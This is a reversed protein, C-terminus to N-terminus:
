EIDEKKKEFSPVENGFTRVNLNLGNRAISNDEENVSNEQFSKKTSIKKLKSIKIIQPTNYNENISINNYPSNKDFTDDLTILNGRKQKVKPLKVTTSHILTNKELINKKNEEDSNYEKDSNKDKNKEKNEVNKRIDDNVMQLMHSFGHGMRTYKEERNPYKNWPIYDCRKDLEGRIVSECSACLYNNLPKKALLWNDQGEAKRTYQDQISKIQAELFKISKVTEYKDSYKKNCNIKLDDLMNKIVGQFQAFDKDNPTHSLKNLIDEINRLIDEFSIRIKDFKRNVEKKNDEFTNYDIFKTFDFISKEEKQNKSSNLTIKHIQSAFNEVNKTLLSNEDILKKEVSQFSDAKHNLEKIIEDIAYLRDYISDIEGQNGKKLVEKELINLNSNIEDINLKKNWQNMNKELDLIRQNFDKLLSIDEPSRDKRKELKTINVNNISEKMESKIKEELDKLKNNNSKEMNNINNIIEEIRKILDLNNKEKQEKNEINTNNIDNIIEDIKKSNRDILLKSGDVIGSINKLDNKNKITDESLKKYKEDMLDMRKKIKSDLAIVMSKALDINGDGVDKFMDFNIDESKGKIKEIEKNLKETIDNLKKVNKKLDSINQKNNHINKILVLHEGSKSVLENIKKEILIIRSFLKSVLDNTKNIDGSSSKIEESFNKDIPNITNINKYFKETEKIYNSSLENNKSTNTNNNTINSKNDQGYNKKSDKEYINNTNQIEKDKNDKDKDGEFQSKEKNKDEKELNYNDKINNNNNDNNDDNRINDNRNDDIKIDDDKNKNNNYEKQNKEKNETGIENYINENEKLIDNNRENNTINNDYANMSLNDNNSNNDDINLNNLNYNEDDKLFNSFDNDHWGLSSGGGEGSGGGSQQQPSIIKKLNNIIIDHENLKKENEKQKKALELLVNILSTFEILSQCNVELNNIKIQKEEM